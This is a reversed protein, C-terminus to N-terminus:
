SVWYSVLTFIAFLLATLITFFLTLKWNLKAKGYQKIQLEDHQNAYSLAIASFAALVYMTIPIAIPVLYPELNGKTASLLWFLGALLTAIAGLARILIDVRKNRSPIFSIFLLSAAVMAFLAAKVGYIESKSPPSSTFLDRDPFTTNPLSGVLLLHVIIAFM